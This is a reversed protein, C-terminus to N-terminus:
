SGSKKLFSIAGSTEMVAWEVEDLSGINQQRAAQLRRYELMAVLGGARHEGEVQAQDGVLHAVGVAQLALLPFQRAM